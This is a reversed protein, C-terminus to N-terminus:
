KNIIHKFKGSGPLQRPLENSLFIKVDDIKHSALFSLLAKSAQSFAVDKSVGDNPELRLEVKNEACVIVQFRRLSHVEKLTAYIALPPIKIEKTNDIVFRVVDDTRGEITLWPSPNGCPCQEHHMIVRDTIEYRIFPQTYNFLNTLLVKDAQVGDPVPQNNHDVPEIFLWDDNVHFHHNICECAITGGETCSYSTQVFCGFTNTLENRLNESLYEGGTMIITPNIHLRGSKKEDILLELNSPYGGLMVPKFRNLQEVIEEIPLLASTVTFQKKKWPMALQRARISGNSLYFGETAFVGISKGGRLVFSRMDEKRAFSRLANIAVMMNNTTKDCLAVLPTGTSGSTTYILYKNMIKRGINDSKEMFAEIGLLKVSQDTIWQDFQSMLQGKTVIPLDTLTYEKGIDKYLEHYVPSKEKAWSVIETLRKNRIKEREESNLSSFQRCLRMSQLM